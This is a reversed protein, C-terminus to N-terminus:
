YMKMLWLTKSKGITLRRGEKQRGAAESLAITILLSIILLCFYKVALEALM